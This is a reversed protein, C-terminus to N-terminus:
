ARAAQVLWRFAKFLQAGVSSLLPPMTDLRQVSVGMERSILIFILLNKM